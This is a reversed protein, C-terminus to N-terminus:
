QQISQSKQTMEASIIDLVTDAKLKAETGDFWVSIWDYGEIIDNNEWSWKLDDEGHLTAEASKFRPSYFDVHDLGLEDKSHPRRQLIKVIKIGSELEIDRLVFKAVWRGNMWTEIVHDSKEHLEMRWREYQTPDAIKWGVAVPKLSEFFAKDQRGAILKSWKKQYTALQTNLEDIM